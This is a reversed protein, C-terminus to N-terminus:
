KLAEAAKLFQDCTDLKLRDDGADKVCDRYEDILRLREEHVHEQAEYARDQPSSCSSLSIAVFPIVLVHIAKM